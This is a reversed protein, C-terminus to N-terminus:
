GGGFPPMFALEDGDQLKAERDVLAGNRALRTSREIEGLPPFERALDDWVAGATAGEPVELTRQAAGVIERIGAFALVRVHM